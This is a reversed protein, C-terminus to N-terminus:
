QCMKSQPAIELTVTKVGDGKQTCAAEVENVVQIWNGNGLAAYYKWTVTVLAREASTAHSSAISSEFMNMKMRNDHDHANVHWTSSPLYSPIPHLPISYLLTKIPYLLDEDHYWLSAM